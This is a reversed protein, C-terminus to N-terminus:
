HMVQPTVNPLNCLEEYPIPLEFSHHIINAGYFTATNELLSMLRKRIQAREGEPSRFGWFPGDRFLVTGRSSFEETPERVLIGVVEIADTKIIFVEEIGYQNREPM